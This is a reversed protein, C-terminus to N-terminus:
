NGKREIPAVNNSPKNEKKTFKLDGHSRYAIVRNKDRILVNWGPDAEAWQTM